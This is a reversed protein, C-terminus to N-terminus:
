KYIESEQFKLNYEYEYTSLNSSRESRKVKLVWNQYHLEKSITSKVRFELNFWAFKVEVNGKLGFKLAVNSLKECFKPWKM